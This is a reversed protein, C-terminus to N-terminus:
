ITLFDKIKSANYTFDQDARSKLRSIIETNDLALEGDSEFNIRLYKSDTLILWAMNQASISQLNLLTEVLKKGGWGRALGWKRREANHPDYYKQGLGTGLSFLRVESMDGRLKGIAETLAVLSPNNAWLGGDALLYQGVKQPDFYSPASCSALVAEVIGVNRDRVFEDLYPSKFVYVRGNSIDTAPITLRTKADSLTQEGFIGELLKRLHQKSYQSRSLGRISWPQKQFIRRGEQEYLEVIKEVPHDVALAAAIISGTSTGIILDFHESFNVKFEEQIRKLIYAPYIGRIGGGDIALIRFPMSLLRERTVKIYGIRAYLM